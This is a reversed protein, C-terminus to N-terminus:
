FRVGLVVLLVVAGLLFALAYSRVFGSQLIPALRATRTVVEGLENAAGDVVRDDM